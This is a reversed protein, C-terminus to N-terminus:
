EGLVGSRVLDAVESNEMALQANHKTILLQQRADILKAHYSEIAERENKIRRTERAIALEFCELLRNKEDVLSSLHEELKEVFIEREFFEDQQALLSEHREIKAITERLDIDLYGNLMKKAPMQGAAIAQCYRNLSM